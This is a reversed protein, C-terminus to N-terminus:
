SRPEVGKGAFVSLDEEPPVALTSPVTCGNVVKLLRDKLEQTLESPLPFDAHVSGVRHPCEGHVLGSGYFAITLNM